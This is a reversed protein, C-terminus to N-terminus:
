SQIKFLFRLLETEDDVTQTKVRKDMESLLLLAREIEKKTLGRVFQPLRKMVSPPLGTYGYYAQSTGQGIKLCWLEYYYSTLGYILSLLTDNQTVMTKGLFIAKKFDKVGLALFFEWRQFQKQWGSFQEIQQVTIIEDEGIFLSLKEIENKLHDLSDGAIGVVTHIVSGSVKIGKNDFFYKAWKKMGPELPTSVSVSVALDQINKLFKTKVQWEDFNVVLVNENAPQQCYAILQERYQGKILQPQQIIFLSKTAFLDRQNLKEVIERSPMEDPLLITRKGEVRGFIAKELEDAFYNQLFRDEGHLFYISEIEGKEISRVASGFDKSKM